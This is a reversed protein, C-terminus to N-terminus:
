PRHSELWAALDGHGTFGLLAEGLDEVDDLPLTEFDRNGGIYVSEPSLGTGALRRLGEASEANIPIVRQRQDWCEALFGDYSAACDAAAALDMWQGM